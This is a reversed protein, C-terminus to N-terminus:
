ATMGKKGRREKRRVREPDKYNEMETKEKGHIIEAVSLYIPRINTNWIDKKVGENTENGYEKLAEDIGNRLVGEIKKMNIRGNKTRSAKQFDIQTDRSFEQFLAQMHDQRGSFFSYVEKFWEPTDAIKNDVYGRIKRPDKSIEELSKIENVLDVFENHEKSSRDENGLKYLPVSSVLGLMDTDDYLKFFDDLNGQVYKAMSETSHENVRDGYVRAKVHSDNFQEFFQSNGTLLEALNNIIYPNDTDERLATVSNQLNKYDDFSSVFEDRNFKRSSDIPSYLRESFDEHNAILSRYSEIEEKSEAMKRLIEM